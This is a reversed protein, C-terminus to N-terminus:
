QQGGVLPFIIPARQRDNQVNPSRLTLPRVSAARVASILRDVRNASSAKEIKSIRGFRTPRNALNATLRQHITAPKVCAPADLALAKAERARRLKHMKM